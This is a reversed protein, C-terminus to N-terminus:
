PRGGFRRELRHYIRVPRGRGPDFRAVPEMRYLTRMRRARDRLGRSSWMGHWSEEGWVVCDATLEGWLFLMHSPMPQGDLPPEETVEVCGPDLSPLDLGAAAPPVRQHWRQALDSTGLGLGILVVLGLVQATRHRTAVVGVVVCLLVGGMLAHRSGYDDFLSGSLHVWAVAAFLPWLRRDRLGVLSLALVAPGLFSVVPWNASLAGWPEVPSPMPLAWLVWAASVVGALGPVGRLLAVVLLDVRLAVALAVWIWAWRDRLIFATALLAHPLIVNYASTSWAVHEPLLIVAAGAWLGAALGFNRRTWLWAVVAVWSGAIASLWVLARPDDTLMGLARWLMTM